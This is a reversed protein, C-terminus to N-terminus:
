HIFQVIRERVSRSVIKFSKSGKNGHAQHMGKYLSKANPAGGGTRTPSFLIFFFFIGRPKFRVMWPKGRAPAAM